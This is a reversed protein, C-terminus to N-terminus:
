KKKRKGTWEQFQTDGKHRHYSTVPGSKKAKNLEEAFRIRRVEAWDVEEKEEPEVITFTDFGKWMEELEHNSVHVGQELLKAKWLRMNKLKQTKYKDPTIEM